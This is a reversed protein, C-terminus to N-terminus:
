NVQVIEKNLMKLTTLNINQLSIELNKKELIVVQFDPM